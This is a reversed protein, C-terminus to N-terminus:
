WFAFLEVLHLEGSALDLQNPDSAVLQSSGPSFGLEPIPPLVPAQEEHNEQNDQEGQGQQTEGESPSPDQPPAQDPQTDATNGTNGSSDPVVPQAGQDDIVGTCATLLVAALAVLSFMLIVRKRM